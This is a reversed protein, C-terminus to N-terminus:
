LGMVAPIKTDTRETSVPQHMASPVDKLSDIGLGKKLRKTVELAFENPIHVKPIEEEEEAENDSKMLAALPAPLFSSLMPLLKEILGDLADDPIIVGNMIGFIRVLGRAFSLTLLVFAVLVYGLNSYEDWIGLMIIADFPYFIFLILMVPGIIYKWIEKM